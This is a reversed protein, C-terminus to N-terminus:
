RPWGRTDMGQVERAIADADSLDDLWQIIRLVSSAHPVVDKNRMEQLVIDHLQKGTM